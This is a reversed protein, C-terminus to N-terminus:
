KKKRDTIIFYLFVVIAIPGLVLRLTIGRLLALLEYKEDNYMWLFNLGLSGLLIWTIM